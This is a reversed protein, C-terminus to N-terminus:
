FCRMCLVLFVGAWSFVPISSLRECLEKTEKFSSHQRIEKLLYLKLAAVKPANVAFFSAIHQLLTEDLTAFNFWLFFCATRETGKALYSHSHARWEHKEDGSEHICLCVSGISASVRWRKLHCQGPRGLRDGMGLWLSGWWQWYCKKSECWIAKCHRSDFWLM